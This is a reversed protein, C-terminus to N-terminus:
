GLTFNVTVTMMVPVPVGNLLTPTYEWQLVSDIAAQDLLPISRLVKADSVRGDGGILVELIVMGSVGAAQAEPPYVPAVRKINKPEKITGGVRVPQGSGAYTGGSSVSQRATAAEGTEGSLAFTVTVPFSIPARAPPDYRWQQVSRIAADTLAKALNRVAHAREANQNTMFREDDEATSGSLTLSVQPDKATLELRTRRVEAVRGLEDLTVAMTVRGAAGAAAAEPPYFPAEYNVRAPIPNEPTIPKAQKELPGIAPTQALASAWGGAAVALVVGCTAMMRLSTM